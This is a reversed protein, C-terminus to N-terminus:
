WCGQELGSLFDDRRPPEVSGQGTVGGVSVQMAPEEPADSSQAEWAEKLPTGEAWARAVEDTLAGAEPHDMKFQELEQDLEQTQQKEDM